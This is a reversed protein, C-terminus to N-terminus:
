DASALVIEYEGSADSLYVVWKGDASWACDREAVGSTRTLNRPSGEKAPVSWVDGRASVLVRKGSRGPDGAQAFKSAVATRPKLKARAGPIKVEVAHSKGAGIDYLELASGHQYVIEGAGKPGPGISPWKVDYDAFHTLQKKALSGPDLSWLNAR